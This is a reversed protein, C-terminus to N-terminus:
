ATRRRWLACCTWASMSSRMAAFGFAVSSNRTRAHQQPQLTLTDRIYSTLQQRSASTHLIAILDNVQLSHLERCPKPVKRKYTLTSCSCSNPRNEKKINQPAPCAHTTTAARTATTRAPAASAIGIHASHCDFRQGALLATEQLGEAGKDQSNACQLQLQKTQKRKQHKATRPMCSNNNSRTNSNHSRSSSVRHRHACLPM